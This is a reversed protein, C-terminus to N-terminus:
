NRGHKLISPAVLSCILLGKKLHSERFNGCSSNRLHTNIPREPSLTSFTMWPRQKFNRALHRTGLQNLHLGKNGICDRGLNSNDILDHKSFFQM